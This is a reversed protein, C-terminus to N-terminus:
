AARDREEEDPGEFDGYDEHKAQWSAEWMADMYEACSACCAQDERHCAQELPVKKLCWACIIDEDYIEGPMDPTEDWLKFIEAM